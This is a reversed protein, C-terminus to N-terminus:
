ARMARVSGDLLTIARRLVLEPPSPKDIWPVSGLEPAHEEVAARGSYMLFPVNRRRLERALELCSGDKLAADLIAVDPAASALAALADACSAFSGTVRFGEDEFAEELSLAILAEDEVVM